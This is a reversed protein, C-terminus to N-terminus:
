QGYWPGFRFAKHGCSSVDQPRAMRELYRNLVAVIRDSDPVPLSGGSLFDQQVDIIVLADGESPRSISTKPSRTM